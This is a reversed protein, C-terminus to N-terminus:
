ALPERVRTERWRGSAQRAYLLAAAWYLAAGVGVAVSGVRDGITAWGFSTQSLALWTLGFLLAATAAKGALNVPIREVGRRELVPWLSLLILDRGVIAGALWPSLVGRALLAICLAVILVRDALPDLLKGLTTVAGMRRALYGDFFDSVAGIGYVVVAANERGSVFLWVFVPVTALRALSLANPVTLVRGEASGTTM